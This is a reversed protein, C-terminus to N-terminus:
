DQDSSDPFESNSITNLPKDNAAAIVESNEDDSMGNDLAAFVPNHPKTTKSKWNKVYTHGDLRRSRQSLIGDPYEEM